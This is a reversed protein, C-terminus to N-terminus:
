YKFYTNINLNNHLLYKGNIIILYYILIKLKILYM